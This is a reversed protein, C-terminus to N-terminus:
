PAFEAFDNPQGEFRLRTSSWRLTLRGTDGHRHKAVILTATEARVDDRHLLWVIDADQEICGSERLHSLKPAAGDAERNLQALAVVPVTLEKALAKLDATIQGVQEHRDRKRDAPQVLGIYDVILLDLGHAAQAYKAQAKICATTARSADFIYLPHSAVQSAAWELQGLDHADYRGSRVRQADVGAAGCLVRSVLERDRMELSVFLVSRGRAAVDVAIQMALATKGIGTRAAIVVLEGGAFGGVTQDVTPLGTLITRRRTQPQKLDGIFEGAVDGLPQCRDSADASLGSIHADLWAAIADPDAQPEAARADLQRGIGQLTRLRSARRVEHAYYRAHAATGALALRGLFAATRVSQPVGARQLAPVLYTVDSIPEGAHHLTVLGDFLAGLDRDAFDHAALTDGIVDVNSQDLLLAALIARESESVDNM